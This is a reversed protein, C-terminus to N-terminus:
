IKKYLISNCYCLYNIWITVSYRDKENTLNHLRIALSVIKKFIAVNKKCISIKGTFETELEIYNRGGRSYNFNEYYFNFDLSGTERIYEKLQKDTLEGNKYLYNDIAQFLEYNLM